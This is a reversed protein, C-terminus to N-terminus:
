HNGQHPNTSKYVSTYPRTSNENSKFTYFLSKHMCLFMSAFTTLYVCFYYTYGNKLLFHIPPCIHSHTKPSPSNYKYITRNM